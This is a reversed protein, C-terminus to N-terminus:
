DPHRTRNALPAPARPQTARPHAPAPSDGPASPHGARPATGAGTRTGKAVPAVPARGRPPSSGKGRAMSRTSPPELPGHPRPPPAALRGSRWARGMFSTLTRSHLRCGPGRAVAGRRQVARPERDCHGALGPPRSLLMTTASSTGRDAEGHSGAARRDRAGARWQLARRTPAEPEVQPPLPRICYVCVVAPRGPWRPAGPGAASRSARTAAATALREHWRGRGHRSGEGNGVGM